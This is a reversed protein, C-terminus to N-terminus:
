IVFNKPVLAWIVPWPLRISGSNVHITIGILTFM